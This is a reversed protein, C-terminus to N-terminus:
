REERIHIFLVMGDANIRDPIFVIFGRMSTKRSMM